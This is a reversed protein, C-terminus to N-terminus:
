HFSSDDVNAADNHHVEAAINAVASDAAAAATPPANISLLSHTTMESSSATIGIVVLGATSLLALDGTCTSNIQHLLRYLLV